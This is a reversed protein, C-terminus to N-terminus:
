ILWQVATLPPINTVGGGPIACRRHHNLIFLFKVNRDLSRYQSLFTRSIRTIPTFSTLRKGEADRNLVKHSDCRIGEHSDSYCSSRSADLSYRSNVLPACNLQDPWITYVHKCFNNTTATVGPARTMGHNTQFYIILTTDPTLFLVVKPSKHLSYEDKIRNSFHQVRREEWNIQQQTDHLQLSKMTEERWHKNCAGDSGARTRTRIGEPGPDNCNDKCPDLPLHPMKHLNINGNSTPEPMPHPHSFSLEMKNFLGVVQDCCSSWSILFNNRISSNAASPVQAASNLNKNCRFLMNTINSGLRTSTRYTYILTDTTQDALNKRLLALNTQKASGETNNASGHFNLLLCYVLIPIVQSKFHKTTQLTRKLQLLGIGRQLGLPVYYCPQLTTEYVTQTNLGRLSLTNHGTGWRLREYHLDLTPPTMDLLFLLVHMLILITKDMYIETSANVLIQPSLPDNVNPSPTSVKPFNSTCTIILRSRHTLEAHTLDLCVLFLILSFSVFLPCVPCAAPRPPREEHSAMLLRSAQPVRPITGRKVPPGTGM